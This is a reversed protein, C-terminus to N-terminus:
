IPRNDMIDAEIIERVRQMLNKNTYAIENPKPLDGYCLSDLVTMYQPELMKWIGDFDTFLVSSLIESDKWQPPRDYEQKDHEILELLHKPFDANLYELCDKDGCMFYLDYFHRIKEKLEKYDPPTFSFRLLSVIKEVMTRRKDLVNLEFPSMDYEQILEYLGRNQLMDTIFSSVQRREFPYPNGYTNIEVIVYNGLFDLKPDRQRIVSNYSHYTKRFRNNKITGADETETLRVTSAHGIQAVLKKQQNQSLLDTLVAIDVDSSFRNVLKYAKAISTGGKWVCLHEKKHRSLNQLIHCIWYDKEVFEPPIGLGNVTLNITEEFLKPNEHLKM